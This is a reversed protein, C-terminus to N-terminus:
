VMGGEKMNRIFRSLAENWAQTKTGCELTKELKSCDLGMYDSRPASMPYESTACPKVECTIGAQKIIEEAFHFRSIIGKDACHFVGKRNEAMLKFLFYCLNNANTPNGWQDSVVSLSDRRKGANIITKVFNNGHLGYLWGARLVLTNACNKLSLQEGKLKSKGYINTPLTESDETYPVRVGGGFVSESSPLIYKAKIEECVLAVFMAGDANISFCKEQETEALDVKTYAACNIVVDPCVENIKKFVADRDTIDLDKHGFAIVESRTIFQPLGGIECTGSLIVSQLEHGLQGEAGLIAIRM